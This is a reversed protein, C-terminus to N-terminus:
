LYYEGLIIDMRKYLLINKIKNFDFDSRVNDLFLFESRPHNLLVIIM